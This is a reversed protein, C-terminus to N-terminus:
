ILRIDEARDAVRTGTEVVEGEMLGQVYREGVIRYRLKGNKDEYEKGAPELLFPVYAGLFVYVVAGKQMHSPGVGM